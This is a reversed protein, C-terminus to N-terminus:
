KKPSLIAFRDKGGFDQHITVTHDPLMQAALETLRIAHDDGIELLLFGYPVLWRAAGTIINEILAFGADDAVLAGAPEYHLGVAEPTRKQAEESRLYPPNSIIIDFPAIGDPLPEYISGHLLEVETELQKMNEYAMALADASIDTAIVQAQEGLTKALTLAICGSGTGIDLIRARDVTGYHDKVIRLTEDILFETEPRPILVSEDVQFLLGYFEKQGTLYAMPEGAARRGILNNYQREHDISVIDTGHAIIWARNKGLLFALLVEADLTPLTVHGALQDEGHIIIETITM